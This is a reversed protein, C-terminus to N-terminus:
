NWIKFNETENNEPYDKLDLICNVVANSEAAVLNARQNGYTAECAVNRRGIEFGSILNLNWSKANTCQQCFEFHQYKRKPRLMKSPLETTQLHKEMKPLIRICNRLQQNQWTPPYLGYWMAFDLNAFELISGFLALRPIKLFLNTMWWVM